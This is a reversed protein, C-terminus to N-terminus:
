RRIIEWYSEFVIKRDTYIISLYTTLISNQHHSLCRDVLPPNSIRPMMISQFLHRTDHLTFRQNSSLQINDKVIKNFLYTPRHVGIDFINDEKKGKVSLLLDLVEKPLPYEDAQNSKTIEAPAFVKDGKIDQFKLKLIEGRRRACMLAILLVIKDQTNKLEHIGRYIQAAVTEFSEILRFSLDEKGKDKKLKLDDLPSYSILGKKIATKFMPQLITKFEKKSRASLDKLSTSMIKNIHTENIDIVSLKGLTPKIHKNYFWTKNQQNDKSGITKIYENFYTDVNASKIKEFPNKGKSLEAKVNHFMEFTQKLTTTGFLKTFNREGYNKSLYSFRVIYEKRGDSSQVEYINQKATKKLKNKRM